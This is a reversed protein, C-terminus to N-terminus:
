SAVSNAAVSAAGSTACCGVSSAIPPIVQAEHAIRTSFASAFTGPTTPADTFRAVSVAVTLRSPM